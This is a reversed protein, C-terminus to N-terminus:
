RDQDNAEAQYRIVLISPHHEFIDKEGDGRDKGCGGVGGHIKFGPGDDGMNNQEKQHEWATHAAWGAWPEFDGPDSDKELRDPLFDAAHDIRIPRYRDFKLASLQPILFLAADGKVQHSIQSDEQHKQSQDAKIGFGKGTGKAADDRGQVIDATIKVQESWSNIIGVQVVAGLQDHAQRHDHAPELDVGDQDEEGGGGPALRLWIFFPM